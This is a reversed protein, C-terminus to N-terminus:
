ALSSKLRSDEIVFLAHRHMRRTRLYTPATPPDTQTVGAMTSVSLSLGMMSGSPCACGVTCAATKGFTSMSMMPEALVAMEQGLLQAHFVHRPILDSSSAIPHWQLHPDSM